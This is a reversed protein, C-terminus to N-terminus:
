LMNICYGRPIASLEKSYYVEEPTTFSLTFDSPNLVKAPETLEFKEGVVMWHQLQFGPMPKCNTTFCHLMKFCLYIGFSVKLHFKIHLIHYINLRQFPHSYIYFLFMCTYIRVDIKTVFLSLCMQKLLKYSTEQICNETEEPQCIQSTVLFLKSTNTFSLLLHEKNFMLSFVYVTM